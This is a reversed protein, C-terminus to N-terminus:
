DARFVFRPNATLEDVFPAYKDREARVDCPGLYVSQVALFMELNTWLYERVSHEQDWSLRMASSEFGGHLAYAMLEDSCRPPTPALARLRSLDDKIYRAMEKYLHLFLDRTKDDTGLSEARVFALMDPSIDRLSLFGSVRMLHRKVLDPELSIEPEADGLSRVVLTEVVEVFLERKGPFYGYFTHTAMGADSVIDTLRAGNYGRAAFHRAAVEVIRHRTAESQEAVLDLGEQPSNQGSAEFRSRIESISLGADKLRRIGRLAQVHKPGYVAPSGGSRQMPPLLGARQYHYIASRSFGTQKELESIRMM